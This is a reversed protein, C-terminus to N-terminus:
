AKAISAAFRELFRQLRAHEDPGELYRSVEDPTKSMLDFREFITPDFRQSVTAFVRALIELADDGRHSAHLLAVPKDIIEDRSVLWDIANKFAGPLARVYEPCSIVVGDVASIQAAFALVPQPTAFGELDPSFAPLGALTDFLDVRVPPPACRALARLLATNTSARRLSGSIALLRVPGPGSM